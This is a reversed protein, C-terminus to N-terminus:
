DFKGARVGGSSRGDSPLPFALVPGAPSKSDCM